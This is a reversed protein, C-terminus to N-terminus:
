MGCILDKYKLKLDICEDLAYEIQEKRFSRPTGYIVKMGGFYKGEDRLQQMTKKLEEDIIKMIGENGISGTGDDTKLSNTSMFNPRIEAYQINDAVFDRICAQTYNRFASEYAFLGKMM